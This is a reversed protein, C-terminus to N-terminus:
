SLVGEIRYGGHRLAYDASQGQHRHLWQLAANESDLDPSVQVGDLLVRIKESDESSTHSM